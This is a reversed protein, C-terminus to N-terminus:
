GDCRVDRDEYAVVLYRFKEDVRWIADSLVGNLSIDEEDEKGERSSRGFQGTLKKSLGEIDQIFDLHIAEVREDDHAELDDELMDVRLDAMGGPVESFLKRDIALGISTM